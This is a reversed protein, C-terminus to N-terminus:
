FPPPGQSPNGNYYGNPEDEALPAYRNYVPIQNGTDFKYDYPPNQYWRQNYHSNYHSNYNPPYNDRCQQAQRLPYQSYNQSYNQQYGGRGYHPPKPSNYDGGYQNGGYQQTAGRRVAQQQPTYGSAVQEGKGKGGRTGLNKRQDEIPVTNPNIADRTEKPIENNGFNVQQWAYIKM